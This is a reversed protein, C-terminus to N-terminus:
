ERSYISIHKDLISVPLFTWMFRHTLKGSPANTCPDSSFFHSKSSGGNQQENSGLKRWQVGDQPGDEVSSSSLSCRALCRRLEGDLLPIILYHQADADDM